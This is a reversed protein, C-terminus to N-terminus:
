SSEEQSRSEKYYTGYNEFGGLTTTIHPRVESVLVLITRNKSVVKM